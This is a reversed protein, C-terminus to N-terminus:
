GRSGSAQGAVHRHVWESGVIWCVLGEDAIVVEVLLVHAREGQGSRLM